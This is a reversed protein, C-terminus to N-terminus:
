PAPPRPVRGAVASIWDFSVGTLLPSLRDRNTIIHPDPAAHGDQGPHGDPVIDRDTRSTDHHLVNRGAANSDSVRRLHDATKLLRFKNLFLVNALILVLTSVM